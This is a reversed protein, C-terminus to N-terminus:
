ADDVPEIHSSLVHVLPQAALNRTLIDAVVPDLARTRFEWRDQRDKHEDNDVRLVVVVRVLAWPNPPSASAM